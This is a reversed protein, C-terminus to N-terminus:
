NSLIEQIFFITIAASWSFNSGGGGRGNLPDFFEYFGFKEILQLMEDRITHALEARGHRKLGEAVLWSWVPWTPGRCYRYPEFRPHTPDFCPLGYRVAKMWRTILDCMADLQADVITELGFLPVLGNISPMAVSTHACIDVPTYLSLHPDWRKELAATLTTIWGELETASQHDEVRQALALLDYDARLLMANVGIDTLQFPSHTACWHAEYDQSRFCQVLAVYHDYDSDQPRQSQHAHNIDQRQYPALSDLPVNYLAEDYSQNNDFGSEWPHIIKVLGQHNRTIHYWRHYRMLNPFLARLKQLEEPGCDERDVIRRIFTAIVPPQSIGSSPLAEGAQWFQSNPFYGSDDIHFVIHPVMGNKWQAQLLMEIEQWGRAVEGLYVFALAVFASDWNWQAPYLGNVTPVTFGGADNTHLITRATEQLNQLHM